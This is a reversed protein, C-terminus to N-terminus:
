SKNDFRFKSQVNQHRSTKELTQEFYKKFNQSEKSQNEKDLLELIKMYCVGHKSYEYEHFDTQHNM